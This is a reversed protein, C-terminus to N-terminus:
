SESLAAPAGPAPQAAWSRYELVPPVGCCAAAFTHTVQVSSVLSGVGDIELLRGVVHRGDIVLDVATWGSEVVRMLEIAGQRLSRGYRIAFPRALGLVAHSTPWSPDDAVSDPAFSWVTVGQAGPPVEPDDPSAGRVRSVAVLVNEQQMWGCRAPDQEPLEVVADLVPFPVDRPQEDERDDM